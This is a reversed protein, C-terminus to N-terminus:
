IHIHALTHSLTNTYKHSRAFKRLLSSVADTFQFANIAKQEEQDAIAYISTYPIVRYDYGATPSKNVNTFINVFQKTM